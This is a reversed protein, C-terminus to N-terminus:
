NASATETKQNKSWEALTVYEKDNKNKLWYNSTALDIKFNCVSKSTECGYEFTVTGYATNYEASSPVKQEEGAALYYGFGSSCRSFESFYYKSSDQATKVKKVSPIIQKYVIAAVNKRRQKADVLTASNKDVGQQQSQQPAKVFGYGVGAIAPILFMSIRATTNM